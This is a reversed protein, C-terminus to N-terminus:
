IREADYGYDGARARLFRIAAKIDHLQAPFRAASAQRFEVSAIADGREVLAGRPMDAKSGRQWAGGHVWVLLPANAERPLYLDLLLPEGDARAYEVDAASPSVQAGAAAGLLLLAALAFPRTGALPM